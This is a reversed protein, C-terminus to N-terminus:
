RMSANVIWAADAIAAFVTRREMKPAKSGRQPNLIYSLNPSPHPFLRSAKMAKPMIGM